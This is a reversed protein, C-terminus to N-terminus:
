LRRPEALEWPTRGENKQVRPSFVSVVRIKSASLPLPLPIPIAGLGDTLGDHRRKAVWLRVSGLSTEIKQM